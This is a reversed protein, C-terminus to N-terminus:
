SLIGDIQYNHGSGTTFTSVVTTTGTQTDILTSSTLDTVNITATAGTTITTEIEDGDTATFANDTIVSTSVMTAGNKKVIFTGTFGEPFFSYSVSNASPESSLTIEDSLFSSLSVGTECISRVRPHYTAGPTLGSFVHSTGATTGSDIVTMSSNLLQWEYGDAPPGGMPAFWIYTFGSTSIDTFGSESPPDCIEGGGGTIEFELENPFGDNGNECIPYFVITYEGDDLGAIAFTGSVGPDFISEREGGNITYDIRVADDVFDYEFTVTGGTIDTIAIYGISAACANPTDSIVLAGYGEMEFSSTAFGVPVGNLVSTVILAKGTAYKNLGTAPDSFHMQFDVPLMQLDYNEILWFTIPATLQLEILGTLSVTFSKSQGVPKRWYGDGVTRTDVTETNITLACDTACLFPTYDGDKLFTLLVKKGQIYAM